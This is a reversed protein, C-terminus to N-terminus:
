NVAPKEGFHTETPGTGRDLLRTMIRRIVAAIGGVRLGATHLVECEQGTNKLVVTVSRVVSSETLPLYVKSKLPNTSGFFHILM